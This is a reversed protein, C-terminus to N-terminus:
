KGAVTWNTGDCYALVHNTSSGAITAGWVATTSDNVAAVTGENTGNCPFAASLAAFSGPTYTIVAPGPGNIDVEPFTQTATWTQAVQLVAGTTTQASVHSDKDIYLSLM